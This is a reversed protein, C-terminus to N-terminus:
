LSAKQVPVLRGNPISRRHTAFGSSPVRTYPLAGCCRRVRCITLSCEGINERSVPWYQEGLVYMDVKWNTCTDCVPIGYINYINYTNKSDPAAEEVGFCPLWELGFCWNAAAVAHYAAHSDYELSFTLQRPLVNAVVGLRSAIPLHQCTENDASYVSVNRSAFWPPENQGGIGLTWIAHWLLDLIPCM